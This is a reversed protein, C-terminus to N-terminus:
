KEEAWKPLWELYFLRGEVTVFSDQRNSGRQTVHRPVGSIAIRTLRPM